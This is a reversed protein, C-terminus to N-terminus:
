LGLVYWQKTSRGHLYLNPGRGIPHPYSRLPDGNPMTLVAEEVVVAEGDTTHCYHATAPGDQRACDRRHGGLLLLRDNHVALGRPSTVPQQWVRLQGNARAELLPSTPWYVAWAAGDAVNLAEIDTIHHIGQPPWYEWQHNGGSDWRALGASSIPDSYIGEDTYATWLSNRRDAMMFAVNAGMAFSRRSRGDRGFIQGNRDGFSRKGALVIRGNPLADIRHPAVLVGRM